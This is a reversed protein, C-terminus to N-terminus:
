RTNVMVLIKRCANYIAMDNAGSHELAVYMAMMRHFFDMKSGHKEQEYWTFADEIAANGKAELLKGVLHGATRQEPTQDGFAKALEPDVKEVKEVFEQRATGVRDAKGDIKIDEM